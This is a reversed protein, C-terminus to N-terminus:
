SWRRRLCLDLLVALVLGIAIQRTLLCAALLGGLALSQGLGGRAAARVAAVITVQSLLM